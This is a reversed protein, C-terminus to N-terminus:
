LWNLGDRSIAVVGVELPRGLLQSDGLGKTPALM